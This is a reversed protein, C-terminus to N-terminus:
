LKIIGSEVCSALWAQKAPDGDLAATIWAQRTQRSRERLNDREWSFLSDKQENCLAAYAAEKALKRMKRYWILKKILRLMSSVNKIECAFTSLFLSIVM